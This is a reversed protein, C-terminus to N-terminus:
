RGGKGGGSRRWTPTPICKVSMWMSWISDSLLPDSPRLLQKQPLWDLVQKAAAVAERDQRHTLDHRPRRYRYGLAHVVQHVTYLSVEVGRERHLLAQLDRISWVTVPLGYAQPGQELATTLFALDAEDLKPPRGRRARDVLGSRGEAAFRTQWVHVRHASSHFLRAVSTLTEGEEVLLLAPARCRVRPDPDTKTLHRLQETREQLSGAQNTAQERM